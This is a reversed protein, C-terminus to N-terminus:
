TTKKMIKRRPDKNVLFPFTGMKWPLYMERFSWFWCPKHAVPLFQMKLSPRSGQGMKRSAM